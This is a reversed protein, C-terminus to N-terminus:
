KCSFTVTSTWSCSCASVATRHTEMHSLLPLPTGGAPKNDGALKLSSVSALNYKIDCNQSNTSVCLGTSKNLQMRSFLTLPIWLGSM